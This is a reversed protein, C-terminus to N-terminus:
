EPKGSFNPKRKEMFASTGEKFDDSDFCSGFAQIEASYGDVNEIFQANVARIAAAIAHPSNKLIKGAIKAASNM